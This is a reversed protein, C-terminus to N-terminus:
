TVTLELIGGDAHSAGSPIGMFHRDRRFCGPVQPSASTHSALPDAAAGARSKCGERRHDVPTM